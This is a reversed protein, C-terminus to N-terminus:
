TLTDPQWNVPVEYEYILTRGESFSGKAILGNGLEKGAIKSHTQKAMLNIDEETLNQSFNIFSSILILSLIIYYKTTSHM